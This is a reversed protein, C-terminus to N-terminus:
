RLKGQVKSWHSHQGDYIKLTGDLFKSTPPTPFNGTVKQHLM